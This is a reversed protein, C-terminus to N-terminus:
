RYALMDTELRLILMQTRREVIKESLLSDVFIHGSDSPLAHKSPFHGFRHSLFANAFAFHRFTHFGTAALKLSEKIRVIGAYKQLGDLFSGRCNALSHRNAQDVCPSNRGLTFRFGQQAM